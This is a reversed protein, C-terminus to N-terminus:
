ESTGNSFTELSLPTAKSSELFIEGMSSDLDPLTPAISYAFEMYESAPVATVTDLSTVVQNFDHGM